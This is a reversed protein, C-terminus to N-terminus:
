KPRFADIRADIYACAHHKQRVQKPTLTKIPSKPHPVAAIPYDPTQYAAAAKWTGQEGGLVARDWLLLPVAEKAIFTQIAEVMEWNGLNAFHRMYGTVVALGKVNSSGSINTPGHPYGYETKLTDLQQWVPNLLLDMGQAFVIPLAEAGNARQIYAAFERVMEDSDQTDKIGILGTGIRHYCACLTSIRATFKAQQTNYIVIPLGSDQHAREALDAMRQDDVDPDDMPPALLLASFVTDDLDKFDAHLEQETARLAAVMINIQPDRRKCEASAEIVQARQRPSLYKAEGNLAAAAVGEIVPEGDHGPERLSAIHALYAEAAVEGSAKVPTPVAINLKKLM